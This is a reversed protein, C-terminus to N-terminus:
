LLGDHYDGVEDGRAAMLRLSFRERTNGLQDTMREVQVSFDRVEFELGDVTVRDYTPSLEFTGPMM